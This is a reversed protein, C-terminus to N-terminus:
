ERIRFYLVLILTWVVLGVLCYGLMYRAEIDSLIDIFSM